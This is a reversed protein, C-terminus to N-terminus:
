EKLISKSLTKEINWGLKLRKVITNRSLGIIRSWESVSHTEGNYEIKRTRRTNNNQVSMDVWRCNEPSYGKNNDIRDISLNDAYGNMMAWDYFKQFDNLWEDCITIGKGGYNEYEKAYTKYCRSKMNNYTQYLRTNSLGHTRNYRNGM